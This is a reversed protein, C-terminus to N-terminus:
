KPLKNSSGTPQTDLMLENASERHKAAAEEDGLDDFAKGLAMHYYLRQRPNVGQSGLRGSLATLFPRDPIGLKRSQVALLCCYADSPVITLAREFAESAEDPQSLNHLTQGLVAWADGDDPNTALASRLPAEAEPARGLYLLARGLMLQAAPSAPDVELARRAFMEAGVFSERSNLLRSLSILTGLSNPALKLAEQFHPMAEDDLGLQVLAIALNNHPSAFGPLLRIAETFCGSAQLALEQDLYCLGLLNHGHPDEPRTAVARHAYKTAEASNGTRRLESALRFCVEFAPDIDFAKELFEIAEEHRNMKTLVLAMLHFSQHNEPDIALARRGM